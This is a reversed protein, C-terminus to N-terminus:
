FSEILSRVHEINTLNLKFKNNLIKILKLNHKTCNKCLYFSRGFGTFESLVGDKIQLRILRNQEFRDRCIICM